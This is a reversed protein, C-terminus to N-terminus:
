IGRMKYCMCVSYEFTIDQCVNEKCLTADAKRLALPIPHRFGTRIIVSHIPTQVQDFLKKGEERRSEKWWQEVIKCRSAQLLFAIVRVSYITRERRIEDNSSFNRCFVAVHVCTRVPNTKRRSGNLDRFVRNQESVRMQLVLM